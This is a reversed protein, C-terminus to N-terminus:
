AYTMTDDELLPKRDDDDYNNDNGHHRRRPLRKVVVFHLAMACLGMMFASIMMCAISFSSSQWGNGHRSLNEQLVVASHKMAYLETNIEVSRKIVCRLYVDAFVMAGRYYCKVENTERLTMEIEGPAGTYDTAVISCNWLDENGCHVVALAKSQPTACEVVAVCHDLAMM